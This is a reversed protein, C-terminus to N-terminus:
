PMSWPFVCGDRDVAVIGQSANEFLAHVKQENEQLALMVEGREKLARELFFVALFALVSIM